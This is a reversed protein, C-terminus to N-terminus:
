AAPRPAGCHCCSERHRGPPEEGPQRPSPSSRGPPSPDGCRIRRGPEAPTLEVELGAPVMLWRPPLVEDEFRM